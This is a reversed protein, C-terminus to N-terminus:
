ESSKRKPEDKSLARAAANTPGAALTYGKKTKEAVLRDHEKRALEPTTFTKTM